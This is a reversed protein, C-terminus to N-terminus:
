HHADSGGPQTIRAEIFRRVTRATEPVEMLRSLKRVSVDYRVIPSGSEVKPSSQAWDIVDRLCVVGQGAVNIVENSLGIALIRLVMAAATDVDLFQLRSDPDLFLRDGELVDHIANKRLGPGVFGGMRVILWRRAAHQVCAEALSKHFGYPSQLSPDIRIREDTTEPGSCDPYVDCSSIQLYNEADFDLLSRQTARVTADFDFAPERRARVKSSNGNANIFLECKEGRRAEYNERTIVVCDRGQERLARVFASGVFGEGGLVFIM